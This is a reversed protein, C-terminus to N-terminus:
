NMWHLLASFVCSAHGATKKPTAFTFLFIVYGMSEPCFLEPSPASLRDIVCLHRFSM